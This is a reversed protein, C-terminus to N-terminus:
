FKIKVASFVDIKEDPEFRVLKGNTFCVANARGEGIPSDLVIYFKGSPHPRIFDGGDTFQFLTTVFDKLELEM